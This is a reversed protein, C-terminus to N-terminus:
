RGAADALHGVGGAAANVLVRQGARVGAVDLNLEATLAALPLAAAQVFDLTSPMLALQRSPATVYEAYAGAARPFWPMGYVPDGPKFRSVGFGVDEVVGAVDWGVTWPFPGLVESVGGGARTWWDVPNVGTAHVRVLVETLTPEPRPVEEIRLVEPGGFTHQRIVRM